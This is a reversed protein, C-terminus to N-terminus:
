TETSHNPRADLAMIDPRMTVGSSNTRKRGQPPPTPSRKKPVGRKAHLNPVSKASVLSRKHKDTNDLFDSVKKRLETNDIEANRHIDVIEALRQNEHELEVVRSHYRYQCIRYQANEETVLRLQERLAGLGHNLQDTQLVLDANQKELKRTYAILEKHKDFKEKMSSVESERDEMQQHLSANVDSLRQIEKRSHSEAEKLDNITSESAVKVDSYERRLKKMDAAMKEKEVVSERYKDTIDLRGTESKHLKQTLSDHEEEVIGLQRNAKELENNASALDKALTSKETQSQKFRSELHEHAENAENLKAIIEERKKIATANNYELDVIKAQCEENRKMVTEHLHELNKIRSQQEESKSVVDAHSRELDKIISKSEDNKLQACQIDAQLEEKEDELQKLQAELKQHADNVQSMKVLFEEHKKISDAHSLELDKIIVLCEDNKQESARINAIFGLKEAEIEKMQAELAQTQERANTLEMIIREKGSLGATNPNNNSAPAGTSISGEATGTIYSTNMVAQEFIEDPARLLKEKLDEIEKTM